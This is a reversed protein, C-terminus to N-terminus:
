HNLKLIFKLIKKNLPTLKKSNYKDGARRILDSNTPYPHIVSSLKSLSINNKIAVSLENIMEGAFNHVITAGIIKNGRMIVKLFGENNSLISRDNEKFDLRIVDTYENEYEGVHAIEPSTYICWPIILKSAKKKGFFLANQLAIRATFDATHTFKYKFAIDGAAYVKKNTTRLYDNVLIGRENYEIGAKELNIDTNPLRGVSMLIEDFEIKKGNSLIAINEEIKELSVNTEINIGEEIFKNMLIKSAEADEKHLLRDNKELITVKSGFNNFVQGLECGIPGGGLILIKKPLYNLDFITENTLFRKLGPIKPVFPRTGTAIIAKKFFLEVNDCIISNESNFYGKGWFIDVGMKKFRHVSDNESIISRKKRMESMADKFYEEKVPFKFEKLVKMKKSYEILGKSPVCGYNLCDGGFYREEIIAVSAGLNAAGAASVLGATGAGIIILDYIKKPKPNIWDKPKINNLYIEEFNNMM